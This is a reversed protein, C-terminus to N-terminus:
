DPEGPAPGLGAAMGLRWRHRAGSRCANLNIDAHDICDTDANPDATDSLRYCLDCEYNHLQDCSSYEGQLRSWCKDQLPTSSREALDGVVLPPLITIGTFDPLVLQHVRHGGGAAAVRSKFMTYTFFTQQRTWLVEVTTAAVASDAPVRHAGPTWLTAWVRVTPHEYCYIAIQGFYDAITDHRALLLVETWERADLQALLDPWCAVPVVQEGSAEYLRVLAPAEWTSGPSGDDFILVDARSTSGVLLAAAISVYVGVHGSLAVRAM